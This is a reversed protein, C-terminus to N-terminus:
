HMQLRFTYFASHYSQQIFHKSHEHLTSFLKLLVKTHTMDNGHEPKTTIRKFSMNLTKLNHKTSLYFDAFAILPLYLINFILLIFIKFIHRHWLSWIYIHTVETHGRHGREPRSSQDASEPGRVLIPRGEEKSSIAPPFFWRGGPSFLSEDRHHCFVASLCRSLFTVYFASFILQNKVSEINWRKLTNSM